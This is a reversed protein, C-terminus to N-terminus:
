DIWEKIDEATRHWTHGFTRGKVNCFRCFPIPKSLEMLLNQGNEIKYIDIGDYETVPISYGFKENFIHINPAVTCPFIRGESLMACEQAHTCNMFNYTCDGNGNLNLPIHYLTKITEGGGYYNLIVNENSAKKEIEAYDVNIPYKTM